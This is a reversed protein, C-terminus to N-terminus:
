FGCLVAMSYRTPADRGPSIRVVVIKIPPRKGRGWRATLRCAIPCYFHRDPHTQRLGLHRVGAIDLLRLASFPLAEAMEQNTRDGRPRERTAITLPGANAIATAFREPLRRPAVVRGASTPARHWHIPRFASRKKPGVCRAPFTRDLITRRSSGRREIV